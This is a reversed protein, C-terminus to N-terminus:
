AKLIQSKIGKFLPAIVSYNSPFNYLSNNTDYNSKIDSIKNIPSLFIKTLTAPRLALIQVQSREFVVTNFAVKAADQKLGARTFFIEPSVTKHELFLGTM